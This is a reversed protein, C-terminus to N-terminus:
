RQEGRQKLVFRVANAVEDISIAAMAARCHECKELRGCADAGGTLNVHTDYGTVAPPVFGGFLVVAPIGVAAAAHHLGGEPGVYAWANALVAYADRFSTTKVQSVGALIPEKGYVFQVLRPKHPALSSVVEQYRHVGWDKNCAAIKWRPVNPEIVVFGRGARRGNEKEQQTLFIEGPTAYFDYNWVWRGSAQKNYLRHGKYHHVWELDPRREEGPAALNHNGLFVHQSHQDWLIKNGDGLAVRKGRAAAGRAMGSAMLNDGYGVRNLGCRWSKEGSTPM